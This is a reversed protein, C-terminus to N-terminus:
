SAEMFAFSRSVFFRELRNQVGNRGDRGAVVRKKMACNRGDSEFRREDSKVRRVTTRKKGQVESLIRAARLFDRGTRPTRVAYEEV